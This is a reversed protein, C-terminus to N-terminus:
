FQSIISCSCILLTHSSFCWFITGDIEVIVGSGWGIWSHCVLHMSSELLFYYASAVLGGAIGIVAAWLILQAYTLDHVIPPNEKSTRTAQETPKDVRTPDQSTFSM